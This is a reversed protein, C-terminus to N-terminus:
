MLNLFNLSRSHRMSGHRSMPLLCLSELNSASKIKIITKIHPIRECRESVIFESTSSQLIKPADMIRRNRYSNKKILKDIKYINEPNVKYKYCSFINGM